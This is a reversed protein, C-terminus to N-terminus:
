EPVDNEIRAENFGAESAAQVRVSVKGAADALNMLASWAHYLTDRDASFSITVDRSGAASPTM